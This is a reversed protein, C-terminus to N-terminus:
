GNVVLVSLALHASITSAADAAVDAVADAFLAVALAFLAVADADLADVEVVFAESDAAEAAVLLM